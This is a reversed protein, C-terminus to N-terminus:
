HRLGGPGARGGAILEALSTMLTMLAIVGVRIVDETPAEYISKAEFKTDEQTAGLLMARLGEIVREKTDGASLLCPTDNVYIIWWQTAAIAGPM